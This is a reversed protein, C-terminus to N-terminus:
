FAFSLPRFDGKVAFEGLMETQFIKEWKSKEDDRYWVARVATESARRIAPQSVAMRPVSNWDLVWRVVDGPADETLLVSRGPRTNFRYLDPSYASRLTVAVIM